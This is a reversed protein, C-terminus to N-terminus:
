KINKVFREIRDIGEDINSMSTAYSLRMYGDVGFGSGPVVAVFGNELLLEAFVDSNKIVRNKYSKGNFSSINVMLYFAGSPKKCSIGPINNFREVAYDRRKRYEERMKAIENKPGDLAAISAKQSISCPNSTEHSQINSMIRAIDANSATYGIRWGTMAYAKSVGNVTITLDKIVDGFSAISVQPPGDYVLEDYIEDSIIFIRHKLAIHALDWLEQESYIMGTPNSPSNIIVAKTKQTIANEFQEATMKFDNKEETHVIVPIGDALKIMEPYSVWYPAPLIVQDGHNLLAKMINNLSHKGGNSVVIEVPKYLLGNDRELKRCIAEKLEVTGSAPTYKTAGEDIAKKAAKKIFMPTDFDPEGTGFGIVNVGQAKLAKAKADIAFTASPSVALAKKSYEKM